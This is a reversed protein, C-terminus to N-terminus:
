AVAVRERQMASKSMQGLEPFVSGLNASVWPSMTLPITGSYRHQKGGVIMM